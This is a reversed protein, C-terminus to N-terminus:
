NMSRTSQRPSGISLYLKMSRSPVAASSTNSVRGRANSRVQHAGHPALRLQDRQAPPFSLFAPLSPARPM